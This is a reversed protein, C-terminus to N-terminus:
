IAEKNANDVMSGVMDMRDYFLCVAVMADVQEQESALKFFQDIAEDNERLKDLDRWQYRAEPRGFRGHLDYWKEAINNLIAQRTRATM